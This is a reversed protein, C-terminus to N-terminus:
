PKKQFFESICFCMVMIVVASFLDVIVGKYILGTGSGVFNKDYESTMGHFYANMPWGRVEDLLEFRQHFNAWLILGLLLALVIVTILRFGFIKKM